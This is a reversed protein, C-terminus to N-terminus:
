GGMEQCVGTGASTQLEQHWKEFGPLDRARWRRQIDLSETWQFKWNRGGKKEGEKRGEGEGGREKTTGISSFAVRTSPVHEM